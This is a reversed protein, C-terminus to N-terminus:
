DTFQDLLLDKAQNIKVALYSSGGRDPHLKQILKRHADVIAQKDAGPELGLVAYAEDASIDSNHTTSSQQQHNADQETRWKDGHARDLYNELLLRSEEDQDIYYDRLQILEQMSLNDLSRGAFLGSKVIGSLKGTDHDLQMHLYDTDVQSTQGASPQSGKGFTSAVKRLMPLYTILGLLRRAAPIMAGALAFLWHLRGTLVLGLLVVGAVIMLMKWRKNAPLQKLWRYLMLAIIIAAILLIIRAM